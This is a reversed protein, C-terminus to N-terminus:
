NAHAQSLATIIEDLSAYRPPPPPAPRALMLVPLRLARAALLKAFSATGGANKVALHTIGLEEFLQKEQEMDAQPLAAIFNIQGETSPAKLARATVQFKHEVPLAAIGEQGAALFLHAHDPIDAYLGALGAYETWLDEADAQWAPRWFSLRKVQALDSAAVAHATMRAAYPHTTDVLHTIQQDALFRALGDAGGFGGYRVPLDVSIPTPTVGALSMEANWGHKAAHNALHRAEQTGGLILIKPIM